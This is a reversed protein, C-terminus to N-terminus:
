SFITQRKGSYIDNRGSHPTLVNGGALNTRIYKHVFDKRYTYARNFLCNPEYVTFINNLNVPLTKNFARYMVECTKLKVLDGFKLIHLDQVIADTHDEVTASDYHWESFLLIRVRRM